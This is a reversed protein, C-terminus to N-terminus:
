RGPEAHRLEESAAKRLFIPMFTTIRANSYRGSILRRLTQEIRESSVQGKLDRGVAETISSLEVESAQAELVAAAAISM